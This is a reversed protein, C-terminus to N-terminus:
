AKKITSTKTKENKSFRLIKKGLMDFTEEMNLDKYGNISLLHEPYYYGTSPMPEGVKTIQYLIQGSDYTRWFVHKGNRYTVRHNMM